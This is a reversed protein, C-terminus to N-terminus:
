SKWSDRDYGFLDFSEPHNYYVLDALSQDYYKKWYDLEGTNVGHNLKRQTLKELEGSLNLEHEAVFPIKIWDEYLNELRVAYDPERIHFCQCCFDPELPHQMIHEVRIRIQKNNKENLEVASAGVQSIIMSYPNRMSTIFKYDFHNEFFICSHNHRVRKQIKILKKDEFYASQFGLRNLIDTFHTSGTRAPTWTFAKYKESINLFHPKM